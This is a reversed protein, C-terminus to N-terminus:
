RYNGYCPNWEGNWEAYRVLADISGFAEKTIEFAGREDKSM